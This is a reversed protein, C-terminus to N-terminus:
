TMAGALRAIATKISSMDEILYGIKELLKDRDKKKGGALTERLQSDPMDLITDCQAKTREFFGALVKFDKDKRTRKNLRIGRTHITKKILHRAQVMTFGAESIINALGVQEEEPLGVLTLATNLALRKDEPTEPSLLVLVKPHLKLLNLHQNVWSMSKGFIKSIQELTKGMDRIRRVAKATEIVTNPERAFNTIVSKIFKQDVTVCENDIEAKLYEIGAIQCAIWRRQGDTLQFLFEGDPPDLPTVIAAVAQGVEKISDALEKLSVPDFSERPQGPMPKIVRWPIRRVVSVMDYTVNM